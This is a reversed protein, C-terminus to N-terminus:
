NYKCKRQTQQPWGTLLPILYLLDLILHISHDIHQSPPHGELPQFVEAFDHLLLTMTEPVPHTTNNPTIPHVLCLSVCQNLHVHSIQEKTSPFKPKAKTLIYTHGEKTIKYEYSKALYIDNRQTQYPIGLFLDM